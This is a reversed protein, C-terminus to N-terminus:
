VNHIILTSILLFNRIFLSIIPVRNDPYLIVCKVKENTQTNRFSTTYVKEKDPNLRIESIFFCGSLYSFVSLFPEM